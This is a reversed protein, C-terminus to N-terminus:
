SGGSFVPAPVASPPEAVTEEAAAPEAEAAPSKEESVQQPVPAAFSIPGADRREGDDSGTELYNSDAIESPEPEFRRVADLSAQAQVPPNPLEQNTPSTAEARQTPPEPTELFRLALEVQSPLCGGENMCMALAAFWNTLRTTTGPPGLKRAFPTKGFFEPYKTGLGVKIEDHLEERLETLKKILTWAFVAQTEGPPTLLCEIIYYVGGNCHGPVRFTVQPTESNLGSTLPVTWNDEDEKVQYGYRKLYTSTNEARASDAPPPGRPPALKSRSSAPGVLGHDTGFWQDLTALGPLTMTTM